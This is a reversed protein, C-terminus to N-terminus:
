RNNESVVNDTLLVRVLKVHDSSIYGSKNNLQVFYWDKSVTRSAFTTTGKFLRGVVDSQITPYERVYLQRAEVKIEYLSAAEISFSFFALMGLLVSRLYCNNYKKM